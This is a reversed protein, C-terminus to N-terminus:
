IKVTVSMTGLTTLTTVSLFHLHVLTELPDLPNVTQGPYMYGRQDNEHEKVKGREGFGERKRIGRSPVPRTPFARPRRCEENEM